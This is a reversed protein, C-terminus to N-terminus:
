VNVVEFLGYNNSFVMALPIFCVVFRLFSKLIIPLLGTRPRTFARWTGVCTPSASSETASTASSGRRRSSRGRAPRWTGGTWTAVATSAFSACRKMLDFADKTTSARFVSGVCSSYFFISIILLLCRCYINGVWKVLVAGFYMVFCTTILFLYLHM